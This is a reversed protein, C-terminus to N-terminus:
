SLSKRRLSPALILAAGLSLITGLPIDIKLVTTSDLSKAFPSGYRPTPTFLSSFTIPKHCIFSPSPLYKYSKLSELKIRVYLLSSGIQYSESNTGHPEEPRKKLPLSSSTDLESGLLRVSTVKLPDSM